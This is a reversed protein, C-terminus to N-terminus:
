LWKQGVTNHVVSLLAVIVALLGQYFLFPLFAKMHSSLSHEIYSGNAFKARDLETTYIRDVNKTFNYM